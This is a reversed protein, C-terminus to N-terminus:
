TSSFLPPTYAGAKPLALDATWDVLQQVRQMLNTVWSGLGRLSPYALKGWSGAVAGTTYRRL